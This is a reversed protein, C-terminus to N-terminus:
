HREIETPYSIQIQDPTYRGSLAGSVLGAMVRPPSLCDECAGDLAVIRLAVGGPDVEVIEVDYSDVRMASILGALNESVELKSMGTM